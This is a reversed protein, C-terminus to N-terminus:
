SLVLFVLDEGPPVVVAEGIVLHAGADFLLKSGVDGMLLDSSLAFAPDQLLFKLGGLFLEEDEQVCIIDIEGGFAQPLNQLFGAKRERAACVGGAGQLHELVNKVILM